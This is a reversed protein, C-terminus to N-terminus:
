GVIYPAKRDSFAGKDYLNLNFITSEKIERALFM